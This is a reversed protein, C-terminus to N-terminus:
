PFRYQLDGYKGFVLQLVTRCTPKQTHRNQRARHQNNPVVEGNKSDYRSILPPRRIVEHSAAEIIQRHFKLLNSLIPDQNKDFDKQLDNVTLSKNEKKVAKQKGNEDSNNLKTMILKINLATSQTATM